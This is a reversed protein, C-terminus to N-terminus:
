QTRTATLEVSLQVEFGLSDENPQTGSGIGFATRDIVTQGQMTGTGNEIQLAFPLTVPASQDRITLTGEAIYGAEAALISARYVATPHAEANFFDAGMAQATVSGLTLSPISITVEVDGHIGDADATESFNIAATWDEFRGDVKSGLQTVSIALAGEQVQWQSEARALVEVEIRDQAFLGLGAGIGLAAAYVGLAFFPATRHKPHATGSAALDRQGPLMRRLTDDRDILHHKVAGAVHLLLSLVLVREFIIHLAKAAHAIGDDTPIFPLGQGFPWWIPAFGTTAAHHVWGSLPVLILSGYLLWHVLAALYTEVRRDPHLAAPKPQVIAWIIRAIAVLFIFLGLTKHLSFLVPKSPAADPLGAAYIGLPIMTIILAAILWHFTKAVSGYTAATNSLMTPGPEKTATGDQGLASRASRLRM